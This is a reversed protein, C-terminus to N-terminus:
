IDASCLTCSGAPRSRWGPAELPGFRSQSHGLIVFGELGDARRQRAPHAALVLKGLANHGLNGLVEAIDLGKRARCPHEESLGLGLDLDDVVDVPLKDGKVADDLMMQLAPYARADLVHGNRLQKLAPVEFDEPLPNDRNVLLLKWSEREVEDEEGSTVIVMDGGADSVETPGAALATSKGLLFGGLFLSAGLLLLLPLITRSLRRKRRRSPRPSVYSDQQRYAPERQSVTAM